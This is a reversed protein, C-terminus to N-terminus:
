SSHSKKVEMLFSGVHVPLSQILILYDVPMKITGCICTVLRSLSDTKEYSLNHLFSSRPFSVKTSVLPRSLIYHKFSETFIDGNELPLFGLGM